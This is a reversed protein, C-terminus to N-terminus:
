FHLGFWDPYPSIRLTVCVNVTNSLATYRQIECIKICHVAPLTEQTLADDRHHRVM